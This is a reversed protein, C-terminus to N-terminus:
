HHAAQPVEATAMTLYVLTLMAFVLAQILGVVIELFMFPLPIVYAVLGLMVTLLVEGAFINGFLRFSLSILKAVESIIELFGVGFEILSTVISMGGRRFSRVVDALKIFKNAYRFFGITAVGLVHSLGVAFVAMALTLNLDSNASRLIPVLTLRGEHVIWRGISGVGPLLGVWNSFLIFLFIGGIIPLFKLSKQRSRTVQDLYKLMFELVAEAFNQLGRPIMATKRRLIFGVVLFFVVALSSNIYANTVPFHGIQFIPEAVLPPIAFIM